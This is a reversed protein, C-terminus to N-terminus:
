GRNSDRRSDASDNSGDGQPIDIADTAGLGDDTSSRDPNRDTSSDPNVLGRRSRPNERRPVITDAEIASDSKEFVRKGSEHQGLLTHDGIGPATQGAWRDTSRLRRGIARNISSSTSASQPSWLPVPQTCRYRGLRTVSLGTRQLAAGPNFRRLRL